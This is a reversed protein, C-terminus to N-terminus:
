ETGCTKAINNRMIKSNYEACKAFLPQQILLPGKGFTKM